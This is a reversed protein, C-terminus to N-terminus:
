LSGSLAFSACSDGTPRRPRPTHASECGDPGSAPPRPINLRSLGGPRVLAALTEAALAKSLSRALWQLRVPWVVDSRNVGAFVKRLSVRGVAADLAATAAIIEDM